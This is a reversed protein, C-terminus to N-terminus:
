EGQACVSLVVVDGNAAGPAVDALARCRGRDYLEHDGALDSHTLRLLMMPPLDPRYHWVGDRFMSGAPPELGAGSGRVRAEDLV